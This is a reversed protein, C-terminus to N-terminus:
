QISLYLLPLVSALWLLSLWRFLMVCHNIHTQKIRYINSTELMSNSYDHLLERPSCGILREHYLDEDHQYRKLLTLPFILGPATSDPKLRHARAALVRTALYIVAFALLLYCFAFAGALDRWISLWGGAIRVSFARVALTGLAATLMGVAALLFGSKEDMFRILQQTNALCDRAFELQFEVMAEAPLETEHIWHFPM